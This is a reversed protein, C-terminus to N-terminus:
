PTVPAEVWGLLDGVSEFSRPYKVSPRNVVLLPVGEGRAAEWKQPVGGDPGSDKTVLLDVDLDALLARNVQESVPPWVAVIRPPPIGLRRAARLSDSRPMVRVHLSSVSCQEVFRDLHNVGITLLVSGHGACFRAAAEWGDVRHLGEAAEPLGSPRRLYGYPLNQARAVAVAHRSISAAFPHTVDVIRGPALRKVLAGLQDRNRAGVHLRHAELDPYLRRSSARVVSVDVEHGSQLLRRVVEGSRATGGLVFVSV